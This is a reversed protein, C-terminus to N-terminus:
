AKTDGTLDEALCHALASAWADAPTPGEGLQYLIGNKSRYAIQNTSIIEDDVIGLFRTRFATPYRRKVREKPREAKNKSM